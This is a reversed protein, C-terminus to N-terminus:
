CTLLCFQMEQSQPLRLAGACRGVGGAAALVRAGDDLHEGSGIVDDAQQDTRRHLSMRDALHRAAGPM